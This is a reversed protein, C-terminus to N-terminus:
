APIRLRGSEGRSYQGRRQAGERDRLDKEQEGRLPVHLCADEVQVSILKSPVVTNEAHDGMALRAIDDLSVKYLRALKCLASFDPKTRGIEYYTYTSRDIRLADAVEKQTMEFRKRLMKLAESLM